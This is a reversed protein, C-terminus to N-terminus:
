WRWSADTRSERACGTKCPSMRSKTSPSGAKSRAEIVEGRRDARPRLAPQGRFRGNLQQDRMPRPQLPLTEQPDRDLHPPLRAPAPLDRGDVQGRCRVRHLAHQWARVPLPLHQQDRSADGLADRDVQPFCGPAHVRHVGRPRGPRHTLRGAAAHLYHRRSAPSRPAPCPAASGAAGDTRPGAAAPAPCCAGARRPPAAPPAAPRTWAASGPPRSRGPAPAPRSHCHRAPSTPPPPPGAPGTQAPKPGKRGCRPAPQVSTVTCPPRGHLRNLETQQRVLNRRWGRGQGPM